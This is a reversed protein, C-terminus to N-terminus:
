NDLQELEDMDDPDLRKIETESSLFCIDTGAWSNAFAYCQQEPAALLPLGQCGHGPSEARGEVSSM